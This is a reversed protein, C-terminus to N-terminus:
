FFMLANCIIVFNFVHCSFYFLCFDVLILLVLYTLKSCNRSTLKVLNPVFTPQYHTGHPGALLFAREGFKTRLRPIVYLNTTSSRLGSRWSSNATTVVINNLYAAIPVKGHTDLADDYLTQASHALTRTVLFCGQLFM